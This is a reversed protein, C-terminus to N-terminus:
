PKRFSGSAQDKYRAHPYEFRPLIAPPQFAGLPRRHNDVGAIIVPDHALRHALGTMSDQDDAPVEVRPDLEVSGFGAILFLGEAGEQEVEGLGARFQIDPDELPIEPRDLRQEAARRDQPDRPQRQCFFM